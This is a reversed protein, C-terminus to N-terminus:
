PFLEVHFKATFSLVDNKSVMGHCIEFGHLDITCHFVERCLRRHNLQYSICCVKLVLICAKLLLKINMVTIHYMYMVRLPSSMFLCIKSM